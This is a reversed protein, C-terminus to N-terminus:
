CFHEKLMNVVTDIEQKTTYRGVSFRIAGLAIEEEVGMAALVPSITKSGSHCASGTSACLEPLAALIQAGNKGLFSINLTNPLRHVADGNLHINSGFAELLNEYFYDRKPMLDNQDLHIKAKAAAEGLAVIYPVNETGARRGNEQSAGHLFSEIEVGDRIFLAGIGKPAYLKHGALTLFDVPLRSVDIKVKGISQSADTHFLVDQEKCIEGLESIPQLTGVENNSHMISVLITEECIANRLDQPNVSGQRNVPLYTVNFGNKKLFSLPKMISPHEICSTIIHKGKNRYTYAVGKIVANNSESGCSTFLIESSKAGLLESVQKRANEVAFKALQGLEYSNSPIGFESELYPLMAHYVEKDITTTANYYLYIM